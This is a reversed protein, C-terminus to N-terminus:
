LDRRVGKAYSVFAEKEALTFLLRGSSNERKKECNVKGERIWRRLTQVSKGADAAVERLLFLHEGGEGNIKM